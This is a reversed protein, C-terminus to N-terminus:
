SQPYASYIKFDFLEPCDKVYYYLKEQLNTKLGQKTQTSTRQPILSQPMLFMCSIWFRSTMHIYNSTSYKVLLQNHSVLTVKPWTICQVCYNWSGQHWHSAMESLRPIINTVSLFTHSISSAFAVGKRLFPLFSFGPVQLRTLRSNIESFFSYITRSVM